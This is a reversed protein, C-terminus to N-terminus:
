QLAWPITASRRKPSFSIRISDIAAEETAHFFGTGTLDRASPNQLTACVLDALRVIDQCNSLFQYGSGTSM